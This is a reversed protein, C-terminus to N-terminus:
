QFGHKIYEINDPVGNLTLGYWTVFGMIIAVILIIGFLYVTWKTSKSIAMKYREKNVILSSSMKIIINKALYTLSVLTNKLLLFGRSIEFAPDTKNHLFVHYIHQDGGGRDFNPNDRVEDYKDSDNVPEESPKSPPTSFNHHLFAYIGLIVVGAILFLIAYGILQLM